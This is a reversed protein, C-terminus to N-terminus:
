TDSWTPLGFPDVPSNTPNEEAVIDAETKTNYIKQWCWEASGADEQDSAWGDSAWALEKQDRYNDLAVLVTTVEDDTLEIKM